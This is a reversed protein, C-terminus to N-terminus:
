DKTKDNKLCHQPIKTSYKKNPELYQTQQLLMLHKKFEKSLSWMTLSPQITMKDPRLKLNLM